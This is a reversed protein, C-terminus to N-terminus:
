MADCSKVQAEHVATATCCSLRSITLEAKGAAVFRVKRRGCCAQFVRHCLVDLVAVETEM